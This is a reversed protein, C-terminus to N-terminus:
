GDSKMLYTNKTDIVSHNIEEILLDTPPSGSFRPIRIKYVAKGRDCSRKIM